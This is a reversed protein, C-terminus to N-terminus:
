TAEVEDRDAVRASAEQAGCMARLCRRCTVIGALPSRPWDRRPVREGCVTAGAVALWPGLVEVFHTGSPRRICVFDGPLVRTFRSPHQDIWMPGAPHGVDAPDISAGTPEAPSADPPSNRLLWLVVRCVTWVLVLRHILRSM